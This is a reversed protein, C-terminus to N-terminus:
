CWRLIFFMLDADTSFKLVAGEKTVEITPKESLYDRFSDQVEDSFVAEAPSVVLTKTEVDGRVRRLKVLGDDSRMQSFTEITHTEPWNVPRGNHASLLAAVFDRGKTTLFYGESRAGAPAPVPELLFPGDPDALKALLRTVASLSMGLSKAVDSPTAPRPNDMDVTGSAALIVAQASAVTMDREQLVTLAAFLSALSQATERKTLTETM